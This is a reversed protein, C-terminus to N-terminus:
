EHSIGKPIKIYPNGPKGDFILHVDGGQNLVVREINLVDSALIRQITCPSQYKIPEIM